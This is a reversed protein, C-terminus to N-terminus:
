PVCKTDGKRYESPSVGVREMFAKYFHSYNSFGLQQSIERLPMSSDRLLESAIELRTHLLKEKFSMSYYQKM